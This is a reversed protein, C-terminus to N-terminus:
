RHHLRVIWIHPGGHVGTEPEFTAVVEGSAFIRRYNAIEAPYDAPNARYRDYNTLIAYDATLCSPLDAPAINGLDVVSRDGRWADTREVDLKGRLIAMPEICGLGGGPFLLKWPQRVLDFGFYEILVSSSVPVNQKAWQAALTRTESGRERSEGAATVGMPVVVAVVLIAGVSAAFRYAVERGVLAKTQRAITVVALAMLISLMPLLPVIWRAWRLSQTSMVVLFLLPFLVMCLTGVRSTRLAVAAGIAALLLGMVGVAPALADSLYWGLNRWLGQGTSGPHFPRAEGGVNELVTRWEPLLYPSAVLLGVVSVAAILATVRFLRYVPWSNAQAYLVACGVPVVGILAAPWKTACAMGVFLAALIAHRPQGHDHFRLSFWMACLMFMTAQVDTRIVQSMAIHLPDFALFLAAIVGAWVGYLRAGIRYTLVITALGFLMFVVRTTLVLPTPDSFIATGYADISSYNGGLMSVGAVAVEVLLITYLTVTGPHGFWGPNLSRQDIMNLGRLMFMPEDADHMSPLGYDLNWIRWAAAVILVLLLMGLHSPIRRTM